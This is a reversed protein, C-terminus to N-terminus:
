DWDSNMSGVRLGFSCICFTNTDNIFTIILSFIHCQGYCGWHCLCYLKWTAELFKWKLPHVMFAMLSIWLQFIFQIYPRFLIPLGQQAASKSPMFPVVSKITHLETHRDKLSCRYIVVSSVSVLLSNREILVDLDGDSGILKWLCKSLPKNWLKKKASIFIHGTNLIVNWLLCLSFLFNLNLLAAIRAMIAVWMCHQGWRFLSAITFLSWAKSRTM